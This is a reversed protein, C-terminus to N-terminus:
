FHMHNDYQPVVYVYVSDVFSTIFAEEIDERRLTKMNKTGLSIGLYNMAVTRADSAGAFIKCFYRSFHLFRSSHM